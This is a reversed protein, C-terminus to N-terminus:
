NPTKFKRVAPSEDKGGTGVARVAFRHKGPKLQRYTRPSKCSRFPKRDLKCEFRTANKGRFRFTATSGKVKAKLISTTAPRPTAAPPLPVLAPRPTCAPGTPVLEYAGIDTVAATPPDCTIRSPLTRPNGALDLAGNAAEDVGANVTPSGPLQSYDSAASDTFLPAATQNSGVGAPSAFAGGETKVTDYNSHELVVSASAPGSQAVRVDWDVGQLITNVATIAFPGVSANALLGTDSGVITVNRLTLEGGEVVSYVGTTGACVSNVITTPPAIECGIGTGGLALVRAITGAGTVAGRSGLYHIALHSVKGGELRVAPLSPMASFVHPMPEGAAGQLTVGNRVNIEAMLPAAQTGYTGANGAMSVTDGALALALAENLECPAGASCDGSGAPSAHFTEAAAATAPLTLLVVAVTAAM